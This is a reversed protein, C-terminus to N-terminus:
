GLQSFGSHFTNGSKDQQLWRAVLARHNTEGMSIPTINAGAWCDFPTHVYYVNKGTAKPIVACGQFLIIFKTHLKRWAASAM